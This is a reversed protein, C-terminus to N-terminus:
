PSGEWRFSAGVSLTMGNVMPLPTLPTFPYNVIRVNVKCDGTCTSAPVTVQVKGTTAPVGSFDQIRSEVRATVNAVTLQAPDILAAGYRAGERAANTLNNYLFVARGFDIMGLFLMILVPLAIAMEVMAAGRENRVFRSLKM